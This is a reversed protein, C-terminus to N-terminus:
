CKSVEKFINEYSDSSARIKSIGMRLVVEVMEFCSMKSYELRFTWNAESRIIDDFDEALVQGFSKRQWPIDVPIHESHVKM